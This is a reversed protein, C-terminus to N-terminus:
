MYKREEFPTVLSLSSPIDGGFIPKLPMQRSKELRQMKSAPPSFYSLEAKSDEEYDSDNIAQALKFPDQILNESIKNANKLNIPLENILGMKLGMCTSSYFGTILQCAPKSTNINSRKPSARQGSGM